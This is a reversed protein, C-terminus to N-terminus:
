NRLMVQWRRLLPFSHKRKINGLPTMYLSILIPGLVSGQPVRVQTHACLIPRDLAQAVVTCVQKWLVVCCETYILPVMIAGSDCFSCCCLSQCRKEERRRRLYFMHLKTWTKNLEVCILDWHYLSNAACGAAWRLMVGCLHQRCVFVYCTM